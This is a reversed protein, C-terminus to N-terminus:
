KKKKEITQTISKLIEQYDENPLDLCRDVINEKSKDLTVVMMEISKKEVEFQINPNVEKVNAEGSLIEVKTGTLYSQQIANYERATIYTKIEVEHKNGTTITSTDRNM